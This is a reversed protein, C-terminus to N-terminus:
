ITFGRQLRQRHDYGRTHTSFYAFLKEADEGAPKESCLFRYVGEWTQCSFTRTADQRILPSFKSTIAKERSELVLNVLHFDFGLQSAMWTGLLWFRLLEYKKNRIAVNSFDAQFVSEYWGAGGSQYGTRVAPNSPTTRNGSTFKAEIFFLHSDSLVILDPESGRNIQEGFERRADALIPYLGNDSQSYGWYCIRSGSVQRCTITSLYSDLLDTKELFRFVNWSLADESNNRAMRSERKTTFIRNLLALDSPDTWLLNQRFDTYEFTSPSIFINHDPCIFDPHARFRTRQRPVIRRCGRVPCPVTHETIPLHPKLDLFTFM